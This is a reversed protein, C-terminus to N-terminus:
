RWHGRHWSYGRPGHYWNGAVYTRGHRPRSWYGDRHVYRGGSWYWDGEVWVAGAYPSVPRVYTVEAPRDNVYYEGACSAMFLSGALTAMVGLKSVTKM